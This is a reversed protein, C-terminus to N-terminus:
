RGAGASITTASVCFYNVGRVWFGLSVGAAMLVAGRLTVPWVDPFPWPPWGYWTRPGVAILLIMVVQVAVYWEGRPGKWWPTGPM